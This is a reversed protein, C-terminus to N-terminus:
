ALQKILWPGLTRALPLPLKQWYKVLLRYKGSDPRIEPMKKGASLFYQWYLQVPEAGWERKFVYTGSDVTSRGFDFWGAGADAAYALMEWYLFRNAGLKRFRVDSGSWPVHFGWRDQLTFSAALPRGDGRVVFIRTERPFEVLIRTFLRKGHPPSGLDRMNRSYVEYFEALLDDGGHVLVFGNKQTKRVKTRMKTKLQAWMAAADGPLKLWLTVKDLRTAVGEPAAELHRLELTHYKEAVRLERAAALLAQAALDNDALIGSADFYPLSCLRSSFLLSRQGVLLLIGVLQGDRWASLYFPEASCVEQFIHGWRPDHYITSCEHGDFYAHWDPVQRDVVIELHENVIQKSNKNELM